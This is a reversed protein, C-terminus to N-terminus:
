AACHPAFTQGAAHRESGREVCTQIMRAKNRRALPGFVVSAFLHVGAFPTLFSSKRKLTVGPADRLGTYVLNQFPNGTERVVFPRGNIYILPEERMNSWHLTEVNPLTTRLLDLVTRLGQVTPIAVGFVPLGDVQRFNPCGELIPVLRKNQCGASACMEPDFIACYAGVCSSSSSTDHQAGPFHDSKLITGKLLVDGQRSGVVAQADPADGRLELAM